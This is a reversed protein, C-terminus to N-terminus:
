SRERDVQSGAGSRTTRLGHFCEVAVWRELLSADQCLISPVGCDLEVRQVNTLLLTYPVESIHQLLLVRFSDIRHNVIRAPPIVLVRRLSM